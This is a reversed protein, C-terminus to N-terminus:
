KWFLVETNTKDITKGDKLTKTSFIEKVTEKALLKNQLRHMSMLQRSDIKLRKMPQIQNQDHASASLVMGPTCFGNFQVM